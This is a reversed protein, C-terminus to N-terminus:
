PMCCLEAKGCRRSQAVQRSALGVGPDEDWFSRPVIFLKQSVGGKGTDMLFFSDYMGKYPGM